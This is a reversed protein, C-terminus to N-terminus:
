INGWYESDGARKLARQSRELRQKSTADTPMARRKRGKKASALNDYFLKSEREWAASEAKTTYMVQFTGPDQVQQGHMTSRRSRLLFDSAKRTMTHNQNWYDNWLYSNDQSM